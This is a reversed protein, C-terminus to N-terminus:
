GIEKQFHMFSDYTKLFYKMAMFANVETCSLFFSFSPHAVLHGGM